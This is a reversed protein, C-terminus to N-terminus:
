ASRGLGAGGILAEVDLIETVHGDVVVSAAVGQRSPPQPPASPEPAIDEIRHVLLGVQGLSTDCVVVQLADTAPTTREGRVEARRELLLDSVRLLPLIEGRYQVVEFAGSREISSPTFQELRVVVDLRVALREGDPGSLIMLESDGASLSTEDIQPTVEALSVIGARTALGAVDLILSPRGDSLITVGAFVPISRTARTLPKIVAETTDGVADVVLGLGRGGADLVVITLGTSGAIAQANLQEDLRVLPLMRGRRRYMQAGDLDDIVAEVEDAELHVIEQVDVQPVAYLGGGSAVILAPMIALTLPVNIRFTTGRGPESSVDISGGVQQLGSRVVDMGVGRGSLNTVENKTSLGARFMLNLAEGESLEAAAEPAIVGTAVARRVLGEPDAGRGDDSVEVHVRGGEHFARIRLHGSAPKGAAIRVEPLEIGHDVANRVLHLLPDRLAENVAKDVGVDEGEIDVVVQKGLATSLDRVVRHFKGTVTGVSQLRARM